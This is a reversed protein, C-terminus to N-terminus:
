KPKQPLIQSRPRVWGSSNVGWQKLALGNDQSHCRYWRLRLFGVKYLRGRFNHRRRMISAISVGRRLAAPAPQSPHIM